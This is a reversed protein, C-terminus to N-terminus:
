EEIYQKFDAQMTFRLEKDILSTDSEDYQEDNEWELVLKYHRTRNTDTLYMIGDTYSDNIEINNDLDLIKFNINPYDDLSSDDIDLLYEISTETNSADINIEFEAKSSPAFYGDEIHSSNVYSFDDLTVIKELSIDKDNLKIEWKGVTFEAAGNANTEFLAYTNSLTIITIALFIAGCLYLKFKM